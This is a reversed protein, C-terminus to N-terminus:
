DFLSRFYALDRRTQAILGDTGREYFNHMCYLGAYRREDLLRVIDRWDVVGQELTAWQRHWRAGYDDGDPYAYVGANKVGVLALYDGLMDFGKEWDEHGEQCIMNAPDHHVGVYRPDFGNVLFYTAAASSHIAGGHTQIIAQIGYQSGLAEFQELTRRGRDFVKHFTGAGEYDMYKLRFQRIGNEAMCAVARELKPDTPDLYDTSATTTSLGFDHMVRVYEPLTTELTAATVWYGDRVMVDVGDFGIDRLMAGAESASMERFFKPFVACKM